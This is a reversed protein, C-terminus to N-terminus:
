NDPYGVTLNVCDPNDSHWDGYDAPWPFTVQPANGFYDVRGTYYGVWFEETYGGNGVFTTVENVQDDSDFVALDWGQGFVIKCQAAGNLYDYTNSAEQPILGFQANNSADFTPWALSPM